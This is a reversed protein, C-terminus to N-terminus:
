SRTTVVRVTQDVKQALELAEDPTLRDDEDPVAQRRMPAVGHTLEELTLGVPECHFPERAVSRVEIRGFTDPVVDLTSLHCVETWFEHCFGGAGEAATQLPEAV